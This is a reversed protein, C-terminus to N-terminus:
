PLGARAVAPVSVVTRLPEGTWAAVHNPFVNNENYNANFKCPWCRVSEPPGTPNLITSRAPKFASTRVSDEVRGNASGDTSTGRGFGRWRRLGTTPPHQSMGVAPGPMAPLTPVHYAFSLYESKWRSLERQRVARRTATVGILATQVRAPQRGVYESRRHRERLNM